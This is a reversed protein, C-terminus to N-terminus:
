IEYQSIYIHNKWTKEPNGYRAIARQASLRTCLAMEKFKKSDTPVMAEPALNGIGNGIGQRDPICRVAHLPTM